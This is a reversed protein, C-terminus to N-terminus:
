CAKPRQTSESKGGAASNSQKFLGAADHQCKQTTEKGLSLNSGPLNFRFLLSFFPERCLMQKLTQGEVHM